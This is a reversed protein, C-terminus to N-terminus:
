KQSDYIRIREKDLDALIADTKGPNTMIAIIADMGKSAMEEPADRDFFQAADSAGAVMAMGKKADDNAAPVKTNGALRGLPKCFSEQAEATALFTLFKKALDKYKDSFDEGTIPNKNVGKPDLVLNKSM